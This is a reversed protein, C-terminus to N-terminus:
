FGGGCIDFIIKTVAFVTVAVRSSLYKASCLRWVFRAAFGKGSTKAAEGSRARASLNNSGGLLAPYPDNQM